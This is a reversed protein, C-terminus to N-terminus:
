LSSGGRGARSGVNKLGRQDKKKKVGQSLHEKSYMESVSEEHTLSNLFATVNMM